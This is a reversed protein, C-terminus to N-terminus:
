NCITDMICDVSGGEDIVTFSPLELLVLMLSTTLAM